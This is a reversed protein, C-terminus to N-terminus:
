QGMAENIDLANDLVEQPIEIKDIENIKSLKIDAKQVVHTEEGGFPLTMDMMMNFATTNFTKKDIFIEFDMIGVEVEKMLEAPGASADVGAPLNAMIVDQFLKSFKEGSASLKFIYDEDTQEFKFDEVFEKFMNMDLRPDTSGLEALLEEDLESPMKIWQGSGEKNVFFGDETKYIETAMAGQEGMDVDLKQYMAIPDLIMDMDTKIKGNITLDQSRFELLQDINISAHMSTLGVSAATAKDFVEQLTLESPNELEAKKGTETDTKPEAPANCAALGLALVGAAMGKIWNKM